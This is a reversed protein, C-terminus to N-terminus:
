VLRVRNRSHGKIDAISHNVMRRLRQAKNSIIEARDQGTSTSDYDANDESILAAAENLVARVYSREKAANLPLSVDMIQGNIIDMAHRIKEVLFTEGMNSDVRTVAKLDLVPISPLGSQVNAVLSNVVPAHVIM